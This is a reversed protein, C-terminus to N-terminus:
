QFLLRERALESEKLMTSRGSTMCRRPLLRNDRYLAVRHLRLISYGSKEAAHVRVRNADQKQNKEDVM